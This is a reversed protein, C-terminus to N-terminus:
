GKSSAHSEQMALTDQDDADGALARDGPANRVRHMTLARLKGERILVIAQFIADLFGGIREAGVDHQGAADAFIRLDVAEEGFEALVPCVSEIDEYVRDAECRTLGKLSLIQVM